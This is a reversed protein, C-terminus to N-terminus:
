LCCSVIFLGCFVEFSGASSPGYQLSKAIMARRFMQDDAVLWLDGKGYKSSAEKGEASFLCVCENSSSNTNDSEYVRKMHGKHMSVDKVRYEAESKTSTYIEHFQASKCSL